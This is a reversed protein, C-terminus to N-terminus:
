FSNSTSCYIIISITLRLNFLKSHVQLQKVFAQQWHQQLVAPIFFLLIPAPYNICYNNLKNGCAALAAYM